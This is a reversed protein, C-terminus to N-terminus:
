NRRLPVLSLQPVPPTYVIESELIQNRFRHPWDRARFPIIQGHAGNGIGSSLLSATHRQRPHMGPPKSSLSRTYWIRHLAVSVSSDRNSDIIRSARGCHTRAECDRLIDAICFKTALLYSSAPNFSDEPAALSNVNPINPSQVAM